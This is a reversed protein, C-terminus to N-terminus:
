AEYSAQRQQQHQCPTPEAAININCPDIYERQLLCLTHCQGETLAIFLNHFLVNGLHRSANSTGRYCCRHPGESISKSAPLRNVAPEVQRLSYYLRFTRLESPTLVGTRWGSECRGVACDTSLMVATRGSFDRTTQVCSPRRPGDHM